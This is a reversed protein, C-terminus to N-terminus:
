KAWAMGDARQGVDITRTVTWTSLDVEAVQHGPYQSVYAVKRDPRMLIEGQGGGPIDLTHVVQLTGLDVVALQKARPMGVLLYKGDLTATSGYGVAPLDIWQKVTNSSRDIMAIRPQTQDSTFVWRGDPSLSIRQASNSIPIVTITKHGAMDLVSVSGPRVNSTYGTKGDKSVVLMHSQEAGTPVQGEIKLTKPDLVTIAKDLETTVYLKKTAANYIPKHPRVGHGFDVTSVVKRAAIDIVSMTSGNTGPAGVGSNGYIPVYAFKGDPSVEVEHGTVGGVPITAIEKGAVPDVVSLTHDGQNAVLLVPGSGNTAAGMALTVAAGATLVRVYAPIRM